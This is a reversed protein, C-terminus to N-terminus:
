NRIHGETSRNVKLSFSVSQYRNHDERCTSLSGYTCFLFLLLFPDKASANHTAESVHMLYIKLQTIHIFCCINTSKDKILQLIVSAFSINGENNKQMWMYNFQKVSVICVNNWCWRSWSLCSRFFSSFQYSICFMPICRYLQSLFIFLAVSVKIIKKYKCAICMWDLRLDSLHSRWILM